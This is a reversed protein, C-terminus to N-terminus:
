ISSGMFRWQTSAYSPLRGPEPRKVLTPHDFSEALAQM